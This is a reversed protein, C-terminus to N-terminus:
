LNKLLLPVDWGLNPGKFTNLINRAVKERCLYCVKRREASIKNISMKNISMKNIGMKNISMLSFTLDSEYSSKEINLM